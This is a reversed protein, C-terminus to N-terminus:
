GAVGANLLSQGAPVPVVAGVSHMPQGVSPAALFDFGAEAALKAAFRYRPSGPPDRTAPRGLMAVLLTSREHRRHACGRLCERLSEPLPVATTLSILMLDAGCAEAKALARRGLRDFEGLRWPVLRLGLGGYVRQDLRVLARLAMRHAAEEDFVIIVCLPAAPESGDALTGIENPVDLAVM